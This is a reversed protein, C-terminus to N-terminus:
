YNPRYDRRSEPYGGSNNNFERHGGSGREFPRQAPINFGMAILNEIALKLHDPTQAPLHFHVIVERPEGFRNTVTIRCPVSVGTCVPPTNQPAALNVLPMAPSASPQQTPAAQQHEFGTGALFGQPQNM